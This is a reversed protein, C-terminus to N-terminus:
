YPPVEIQRHLLSILRRKQACSTHIDVFFSVLFSLICALPVARRRSAVLYALPSPAHCPSTLRTLISALCAKISALCQLGAAHCLLASGLSASSCWVRCEKVRMALERAERAGDAVGAGRWVGRCRKLERDHLGKGCGEVKDKARVVGAVKGGRVM